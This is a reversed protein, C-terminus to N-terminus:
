KKLLKPKGDIWWALGFAGLTVALIALFPKM